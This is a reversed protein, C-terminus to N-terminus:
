TSLGETNPVEQEYQLLVIGTLSFFYNPYLDANCCKQVIKSKLHLVTVM